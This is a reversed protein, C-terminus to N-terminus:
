LWAGGHGPFLGLRLSAGTRPSTPGKGGAGSVWEEGCHVGQGVHSLQETFMEQLSCQM